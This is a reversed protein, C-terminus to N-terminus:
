GKRATYIVTDGDVFDVFAPVIELTRGSETVRKDGVLKNKRKVESVYGYMVVKGTLRMKEIARAAKEDSVALNKLWSTDSFGFDYNPTLSNSLYGKMCGMSGGSRLTRTDSKDYDTKESFLCTTVAFSKTDFNYPEIGLYQAKTEYKVLRSDGVKQAEANILENFKVALDRKAFADQSDHYEFSARQLGDDLGEWAQFQEVKGGTRVFGTFHVSESVDEPSEDWSRNKVYLRLVNLPEVISLYKSRDEEEVPEFQVKFPDKVEVKTAPASEEGQVPQASPKEGEQDGCGALLVAALTAIAIKPLNASISM